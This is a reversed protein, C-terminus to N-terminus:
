VHEDERTAKVFFDNKGVKADSELHSGDVTASDADADFRRRVYSDYAFFEHVVRACAPRGM